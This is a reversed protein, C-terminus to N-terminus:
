GHKLAFQILVIAFLVPISKISTLAEIYTTKNVGMYKKDMMWCIWITVLYMGMFYVFDMINLSDFM